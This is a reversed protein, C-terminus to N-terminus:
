DNYTYCGVGDLISITYIGTLTLDPANNNNWKIDSNFVVNAPSKINFIYEGVQKGEQIVPKQEKPAVYEYNLPRIEGQINAYAVTDNYYPKKTYVDIKGDNVMELLFPNWITYKYGFDPDDSEKEEVIFGTVHIDQGVLIKVHPNNYYYIDDVIIEFERERQIGKEPTYVKVKEGKVLEKDTYMMLTTEVGDANLQVTYLYSFEGVSLSPTLIWGNGYISGASLLLADEEYTSDVATCAIAIETDNKGTAKYNDDFSINVETDPTNEINYFIGPSATFTFNESITQKVVGSKGSIAEWGKSTFAKQEGSESDYWLVNKSKPQNKSVVIKDLIKM